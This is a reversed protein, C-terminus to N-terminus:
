SKKRQCKKCYYTGRQGVTIKSIEGNCKSCVKQQHVKLFEQYNGTSWKDFKFSHITTGNHKISELLINNTSDIINQVMKKSLLNTPTRPDIKVDFLIENVYINGIGTIITQDLLFTKISRNSSKFIPYLNDINMEKSFPEIGLKSLEKSENALQISDYLNITGFQRTDNYKLVSKDNFEFIIHDHKNLTIDDKEEFNYKGEMRLHSVMVSKDDMVFLLYKGRRLINVFYRNVMRKEFTKADINKLLKILRVNANTIVKNLCVKNLYRVVTEVEPLEPM